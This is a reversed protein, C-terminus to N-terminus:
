VTLLAICMSVIYTPIAVPCEGAYITYLFILIRFDSHSSENDFCFNLAYETFWGTYYLKNTKVQVVAIAIAMVAVYIKYSGM